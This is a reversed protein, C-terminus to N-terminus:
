EKMRAIIEEKEEEDCNSEGGHGLLFAFLTLLLTRIKTKRKECLGDL